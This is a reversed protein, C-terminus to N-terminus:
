FKIKKIIYRHCAMRQCSSQITSGVYVNKDTLSKVTYTKGKSYDPLNNCNHTKINLDNKNSFDFFCINIHIYIWSLYIYIYERVYRVYIYIYIYKNKYIYIYIYIYIYM